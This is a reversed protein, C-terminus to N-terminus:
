QDDPPQGIQLHPLRNSADCVVSFPLGSRRLAERVARSSASEAHMVTLTIGAPIDSDFERSESVDWGGQEFLLKFDRALQEADPTPADWSIDITWKMEPPQRLVELIASREAKPVRRPTLRAVKAQLAEIMKVAEDPTAGSLKEKYEGLRDDKAKLREYLIAIQRRHWLHGGILGLILILFAALPADTIVGWSQGIHKLLFDLAQMLELYHLESLDPL